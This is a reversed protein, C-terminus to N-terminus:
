STEIDDSPAASKVGIMLISGLVFLIALSGFGIRQNHTIITAVAVLGPGLWVTVTSTMAYIGFFHGIKDAPSLQVLLSRCSSYAAIILASMPIVTAIYILDASHSFAERAAAETSLPILGFLISDKQIGIQFFFIATISFLEILIANRAGFLRDIAGASLGGIVVSCTAVIGMMATESQRWDLVGAVYVASIAFLANLGDMFVMRAMLFRMINPYEKFLARTAKIPEWTTPLLRATRWRAGPRHFDPMGLYFPVIFVLMWLASLLGSLRAIDSELLGFPPSRMLAIIALLLVVAGLSGMSFGLGSIVSIQRVNGAAPLLANHFLETSSYACGAMGLLIMGLPISYSAGPVVFSLGASALALLVILGLLVPKKAGGRDMFGGLFPAILAMALGAITVTSSFIAQGRASDGIVAESFYASFVYLVVVYYFPSRAWDFSAWWVGTMPLVRTKSHPSHTM